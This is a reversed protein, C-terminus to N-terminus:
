SVKVLGRDSCHRLLTSGVQGATRDSLGDRLILNSSPTEIVRDMVGVVWALTRATIVLVLEPAVMVIRLKLEFTPSGRCLRSLCAKALRWGRCRDHLSSMDDGQTVLARESGVMGAHLNHSTPALLNQM